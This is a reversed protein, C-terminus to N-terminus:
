REGDELPIRSWAEMNARNAPRWAWWSWGAFVVCFTVTLASGLWGISAAFGQADGALTSIM